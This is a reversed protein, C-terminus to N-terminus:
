VESYFTIGMNNDYEVVRLAGDIHGAVGSNNVLVFWDFTISVIKATTGTSM